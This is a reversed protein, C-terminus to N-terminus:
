GLLFRASVYFQVVDLGALRQLLDQARAARHSHEAEVPQHDDVCRGLTAAAPQEFRALPLAALRGAARNLVDHLHELAVQDDRLARDDLAVDDVHATRDVDFRAADDLTVRHTDEARGGHLLAAHDEAVGGGDEAGHLHLAAALHHALVDVDPEALDETSRALRLRPRHEGMETGEAEEGREGEERDDVQESEEAQPDPRLPDARDAVGHELLRHPAEHDPEEAPQEEQWHDDQEEHGDDSDRQYRQQRHRHEERHYHSDRRQCQPHALRHRRSRALSDHRAGAPRRFSPTTPPRLSADCSFTACRRARMPLSPSRPASTSRAVPSTPSLRSSCITSRPSRASVLSGTSTTALLRSTRLSSSAASDSRRLRPPRITSREWVRTASRPSATTTPRAPVM